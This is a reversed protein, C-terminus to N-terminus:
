SDYVNCSQPGAFPGSVVATHEPHRRRAQVHQGREGGAQKKRWGERLRGAVCSQGDKGTSRVRARDPVHQLRIDKKRAEKVHGMPVLETFKHGYIPEDDPVVHLKWSQPEVHTAEAKDINELRCANVIGCCVCM